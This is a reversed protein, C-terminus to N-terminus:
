KALAEPGDASTKPAEASNLAQLLTAAARASSHESARQRGSAGKRRLREPAAEFADLAGLLADLDGPPVRAGVEPCVLEAVGGTDGAVVPRGAALAELVVTPLGEARESGPDPGPLVLLHHEDLLPRVREPPVAGLLRLNRGAAPSRRLPASLGGGGAATVTWAPRAEAIRALLSAGKVPELRGVFLLKMPGEPLPAPAPGLEVGPHLPLVSGAVLGALSEFRGALDASAALLSDSRRALLRAVLGGLPLRELALVDTSHLWIATRTTPRRPALALALGAPLAWHAVALDHRPLESRAKLAMGATLRLLDASAQLPHHAAEEPFGRGLFSGPGDSRVRVSIVQEAPEEAADPPAPGPRVVTCRLGLAKLAAVNRRVFIGAHRARAVPYSSTLVLLSRTCTCSSSSPNAMLRRPSPGDLRPGTLARAELM